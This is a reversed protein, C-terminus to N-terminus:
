PNAQSANFSWPLLEDLRNQPHGSAIRELTTRL